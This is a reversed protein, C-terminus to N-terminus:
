STRDSYDHVRDTLEAITTPDEAGSRARPKPLAARGQVRTYALLAATLRDVDYSRMWANQRNSDVAKLSAFRAYIGGTLPPKASYM